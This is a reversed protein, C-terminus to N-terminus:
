GALALQQAQVVPVGALRVLVALEGIRVEHRKALFGAREGANGCEVEGQCAHGLSVRGAPGEDGEDGGVVELRQVRRERAAAGEREIFLPGALRM